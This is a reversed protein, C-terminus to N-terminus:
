KRNRKRKGTKALELKEKWFADDALVPEGSDIGELLLKELQKQGAKRDKEKRVLEVLYESTNNYEGKKVEQKVFASVSKPLNVNVSMM